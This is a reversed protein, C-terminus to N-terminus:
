GLINGLAQRFNLDPLPSFPPYFYGHRSYLGQIQVFPGTFIPDIPDMSEPAWKDLRSSEDQIQAISVPRRQTDLGIWRRNSDVSMWGKETLVETVSHSPTQSTLLAQIATTGRTAYVAVHRTEFGLWALVKEISRSRDFCLGQKLEYLDRPERERGLPIAQNVPAAKLVADQVAVIARVQAEFDRHPVGERPFLAEYGADALIQAAYHRDAEALATSVDNWYLFAVPASVVGILIAFRRLAGGGYSM